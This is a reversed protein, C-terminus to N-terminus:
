AVKELGRHCMMFWFIYANGINRYEQFTNIVYSVSVDEPFFCARVRWNVASVRRGLVSASCLMYIYDTDACRFM